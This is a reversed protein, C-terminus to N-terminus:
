CCVCIEGCLCSSCLPFPIEGCLCLSLWYFSQASFQKAKHEEHRQPSIPKASPTPNSGVSGKPDGTKLVPAIFREVMGGFNRSLSTFRPRYPRVIDNFPRSDVPLLNQNRWPFASNLLRILSRLLSMKIAGGCDFDRCAGYSRCRLRIKTASSSPIDKNRSEPVYPLRM